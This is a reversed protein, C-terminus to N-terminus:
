LILMWEGSWVRGRGQSSVDPRVTTPHVHPRGFFKAWDNILWEQPQDIFDQDRFAVVGRQAVYLALQQRGRADLKSLQVSGDVVSGFLPSLDEIDAGDLFSRPTPDTLAQHGPDVHTFETLATEPAKKNSSPLFHKYKYESEPLGSQSFWVTPHRPTPAPDSTLKLSAVGTTAADTATTTAIPAM